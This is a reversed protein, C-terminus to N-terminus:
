ATCCSCACMGNQEHNDLRLQKCYNHLKLTLTHEVKISSQVEFYWTWTVSPQDSLPSNYMPNAKHVITKLLQWRSDLSKTDTLQKKEVVINLRWTTTRVSTSRTTQNTVWTTYIPSDAALTPRRSAALNYDCEQLIDITSSRTWTFGNYHWLESVSYIYWHEQSGTM